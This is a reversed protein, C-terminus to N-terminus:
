KFYSYIYKPLEQLYSLRSHFFSLFFALSQCISAPHSSRCLFPSLPQCPFPAFFFPLSSPLHSRLTPFFLALSLSLTPPFSSFLGDLISTVGNRSFINCLLTWLYSDSVALGACPLSFGLIQLFLKELYRMLWLLWWCFRLGLSHHIWLLHCLHRQYAAFM